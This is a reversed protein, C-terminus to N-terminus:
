TEPTQDIRSVSSKFKPQRFWLWVLADSFSCCSFMCFLPLHSNIEQKWSSVEQATITKPSSCITTSSIANSVPVEARSVALLLAWGLWAACSLFAAFASSRRGERCAFGQEPVWQPELAADITARLTSSLAWRGPTPSTWLMSSDLAPWERCPWRM